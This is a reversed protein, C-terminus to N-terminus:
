SIDLVFVDVNEKRALTLVENGNEAEGVLKLDVADELIHKIGARVIAHDDAIAVNIM